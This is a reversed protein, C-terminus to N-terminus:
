EEEGRRDIEERRKRREESTKRVEEWQQRKEQPTVLFGNWDRWRLRFLLNSYHIRDMNGPGGLGMILQEYWETPVEQVSIEQRCILSNIQLVNNANANGGLNRLLQGYLAPYPFIDNKNESPVKAEDPLKDTSVQCDLEGVALSQEVLELSSFSQLFDWDIGGYISVPEDKMIDGRFDFQTMPIEIRVNEGTASRARLVVNAFPHYINDILEISTKPVTNGTSCYAIASFITFISICAVKGM